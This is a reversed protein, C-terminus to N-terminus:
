RGACLRGAGGAGVSASGAARCLRSWCRGPYRALVDADPAGAVRDLRFYPGDVLAAGGAGGLKKHWRGLDYVEGLSVALGEDLHLERPRGYDYLRYTIDSTQQVEVVTV